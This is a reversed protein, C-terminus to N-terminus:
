INSTELTVELLAWVAPWIGTSIRSSALEGLTCGQQRGSHLLRRIQPTDCAASWIVARWALHQAPYPWGFVVACGYLRRRWWARAARGPGRGLSFGGPVGLPGGGEEGGRWPLGGVPRSPVGDPDSSESSESSESLGIVRINSPGGHQGAKRSWAAGLRLGLLGATRTPM